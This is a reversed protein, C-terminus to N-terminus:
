KEKKIPSLILIQELESSLKAPYDHSDVKKVEFIKNIQAPNVNEGTIKNMFARLQAKNGSQYLWKIKGTLSGTGDVLWADFIKPDCKFVKKSTCLKYIKDPDYKNTNITFKVIKVKEQNSDFDDSIYNEDTISFNIRGTEDTNILSIRLDADHALQFIDIQFCKLLQTLEFIFHLHKAFRVQLDNGYTLVIVENEFEKKEKKEIIIDTDILNSFLLTYDIPYDWFDNGQNYIDIRNLSRLIINAYAKKDIINNFGFLNEQIESLSLQIRDDYGDEPLLEGVGFIKGMFLLFNLQVKYKLSIKPEKKKIITKQPFYDGYSRINTKLKETNIEDLAEDWADEWCEHISNSLNKIEELYADLNENKLRNQNKISTM